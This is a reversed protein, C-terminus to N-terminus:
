EDSKKGPAAVGKDADEPEHSQFRAPQWRRDMNWCIFRANTTSGNARIVADWNFGELKGGVVKLVEEDGTAGQPYACRGDSGEFVWWFDAGWPGSDNTEIFVTAIEKWGVRHIAGDPYIAQIAEEDTTVVVLSEPLLRSTKAKERDRWWRRVRAIM